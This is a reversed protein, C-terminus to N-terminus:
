LPKFLDFLFNGFVLLSLFSLFLLFLRLLLLLGEIALDLDLFPSYFDALLLFIFLFEECGLSLLLALIFEEDILLLVLLM